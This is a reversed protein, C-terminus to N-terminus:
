PQEIAHIGSEAMAAAGAQVLRNLDRHVSACAQPLFVAFEVKAAEPTVHFQELAIVLAAPASNCRVVVTCLPEGLLHLREHVSPEIPFAAARLLGTVADRKVPDGLAEMAACGLLEIVRELSARALGAPMLLGVLLMRREVGALEDAAASRALEHAALTANTQQAARAVSNAQWGLYIVAAAGVAAVSVDIWDSISGWQMPRLERAVAGVMRAM